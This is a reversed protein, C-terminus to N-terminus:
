LVITEGQMALSIMHEMQANTMNRIDQLPAGHISNVAGELPRTQGSLVSRTLREGAAEMGARTAKEVVEDAHLSIYAAKMPVGGILLSRFVPNQLEKEMRFDPYDRRLEGAERTWQGVTEGAQNERPSLPPPVEGDDAAPPKFSAELAEKVAGTDLPDLGYHRALTEYIPLVERYQARDTAEDQPMVPGEEIAAAEVGVADGEGAFRQLDLIDM